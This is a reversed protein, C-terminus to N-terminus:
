LDSFLISPTLELPYGALALSSVNQLGLESYVSVRKNIPDAVWINPVGWVRYEELKVMLHHHRDDRCIVEVVVLPPQEPYDEAPLSSFVAVDAVRFLDEALKMRVGICPLLRFRAHLDELQFCVRAQARSHNLDPLARAVIEGHVYEADYEFTMHLYQGATIEAQTAMQPFCLMARRGRIEEM